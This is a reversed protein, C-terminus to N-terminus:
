SSIGAALATKTRDAAALRLITGEYFDVAEATDGIFRLQGGDVVMANDCLELVSKMSHSVFLVTRGEGDVLERMRRQCKQQFPADGVSLIEDVLM